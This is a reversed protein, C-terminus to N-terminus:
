GRFDDEDPLGADQQQSVLDADAAERDPDFDVTGSPRDAEEGADMDRSQEAVDAEPREASSM